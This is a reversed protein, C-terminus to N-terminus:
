GPPSATTGSWRPGAFPATRAACSRPKRHPRHLLPAAPDGARHGRRAPQLDGGPRADYAGPQRPPPRGLRPRRRPPPPHHRQRPDDRHQRTSPWGSRSSPRPRRRHRLPAARPLLGARRRRLPEGPADRLAALHEALPEITAAAGGGHYETSRCSCGAWARRRRGPATSSTRGSSSRRSSARCRGTRRATAWAPRAALRHPLVLRAREPLHRAGRCWHYFDTITRGSSGSRTTAARPPRSADTSACVDGPYSGDHELVGSGPRSSLVAPAQPLLGAGAAARPLALRRLDRVAPRGTKPNVSTTRRRSRAAPWCRTAASSSARRGRTTSWSRPNRGLYEPGRERHRLRQRLHPHGDRLRSGRVPRHRAEGGGPRRQPRAHPDPEGAVWPALTRYMRRLALGAASATPRTTSCSSPASRSSPERRARDGADPGLERTCDRPPVADAARLEGADRLAPGAELSSRGRGGTGDDRRRVLLGDRRPDRAPGRHVRGPRARGRLQEGRGHRPDRGVFRNLRFPAQAM